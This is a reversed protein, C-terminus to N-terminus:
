EPLRIIAENITTLLRIGLSPQPAGTAFPTRQNGHLGRFRLKAPTLIPEITAEDAVSVDDFGAKKAV